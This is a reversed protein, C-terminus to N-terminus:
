QTTAGGQSGFHSSASYPPDGEVHEVRLSDIANGGDWTVALKHASLLFWGAQNAILLPLCRKAFHQPTADMWDRNVPAPVLPMKIASVCYAILDLNPEDPDVPQDEDHPHNGDHQPIPRQSADSMM